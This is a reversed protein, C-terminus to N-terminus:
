NLFNNKQLFKIFLGLTSVQIRYPYINGIRLFINHQVKLVIEIFVTKNAEVIFLKNNHHLPYIKFM